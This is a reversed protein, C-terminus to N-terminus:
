AGDGGVRAGSVVKKQTEEDDEVVEEVGLDTSLVVYQGTSAGVSGSHKHFSIQRPNPRCAWPCCRTSAQLPGLRAM